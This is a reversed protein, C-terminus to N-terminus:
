LASDESASMYSPVNESKRTLNHGCLISKLGRGGGMGGGGWCVCVEGGTFNKSVAGLRYEQQPKSNKDNYTQRQM